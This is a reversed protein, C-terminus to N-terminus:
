ESNNAEKLEDSLQRLEKLRIRLQSLQTDHYEIEKEVENALQDLVGGDSPDVGQQKSAVPNGRRCDKGSISVKDAGYKGGVIQVEGLVTPSSEVNGVESYAGFQSSRRQVDEVEM